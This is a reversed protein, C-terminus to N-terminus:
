GQWVWDGDIITGIVRTNLIEDPNISLLNQDLLTLDCLYGQKIKGLINANRTISHPTLCFAQLAEMPSLKQEPYWANSPHGQRDQRNVAAHLGIIPNPVEVPADSGFILPIHEDLVSRFSYVSASREGWNKESAPIDSCLHIPQMSAIASTQAMKSLDERDVCQLHEIRHPLLPLHNEICYQHLNSLVDILIRNARDGIAHVAMTLGNEVAKRGHEMLQDQELLLMGTERSNEYPRLM